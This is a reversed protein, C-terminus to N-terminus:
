AKTTIFGADRLQQRRLRAERWMTYCGSSVIIAAGTLTLADPSERFIVVAILLSFILRAYRYPAMASAEAIRTATVLLAYGSVGMVIGGLFLLWDTSTPIQFRQGLVLAWVLGAVGMAAFASASIQDSHLRLPLQRTAIDRLALGLVGILAAISAPQFGDLGPRVILLVGGFGVLLASWRRWGVPERLFTAAALVIVLPLAQMIVATTALDTLALAAVIGIAGIMEGLNRLMVMPLMLDRTWLRGGRARLMIAFVVFGLVAFITLVQSYPLQQTLLKIFMDEGAFLVMSIVMLIAGRFNESVM